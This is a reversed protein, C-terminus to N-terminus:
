ATEGVVMSKVADDIEDRLGEADDGSAGVQTGLEERMADEPSHSYDAVQRGTPKWGDESDRMIPSSAEAFNARLRYVEGFIQVSYENENSMESGKTEDM